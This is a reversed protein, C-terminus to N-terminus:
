VSPPRAPLTFSFLTGQGPVSEAWIRGGQADVALRCFTLGLGSGARSVGPGAQSFKDFMRNLTEAPIDQGQNHVCFVVGGTPEAEVQISVESHADGYKVANSLLNALIRETMVRDAYITAAEPALTWGLTIGKQGAWLRLPDVVAQVMQAVDCEVPQIPMQRSELRALDLLANIFTLM